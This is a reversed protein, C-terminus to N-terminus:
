IAIVIFIIWFLLLQINILVYDIIGGDETNEEMKAFLKNKFTM